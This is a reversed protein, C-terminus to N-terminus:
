IEGKFRNREEGKRNKRGTRGKKRRLRGKWKKGAQLYAAGLAQPKTGGIGRHTQTKLREEVLFRGQHDASVQM